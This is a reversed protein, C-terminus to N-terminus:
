RCFHWALLLMVERLYSEVAVSFDISLCALDWEHQSSIRLFNSRFPNKSILYNLGENSCIASHFPLLFVIITHWARLVNNLGWLLQMLYVAYDSHVDSAWLWVALCTPLSTLVTWGIRLRPGQRKLGACTLVPLAQRTVPISCCVQGLGPDKAPGLAGGVERRSWVHDWLHRCQIGILTWLQNPFLPM